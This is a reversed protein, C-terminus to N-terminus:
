KASHAKKSGFFEISIGYVDHLYKELNDTHVEEFRNWDVFIREGDIPTGYRDVKQKISM